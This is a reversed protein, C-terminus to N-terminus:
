SHDGIVLMVKLGSKSEGQLMASGCNDFDPFFVGKCFWGAMREKFVSEMRGEEVSEEGVGRGIRKM